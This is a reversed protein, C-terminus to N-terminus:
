KHKPPIIEVPDVKFMEETDKTKEGQSLIKKIEELYENAKEKDEGASAKEILDEIRTAHTKIRQELTKPYGDGTDIFRVGVIIADDTGVPIFYTATRNSTILKVGFDSTYRYTKTNNPRIAMIRNHGRNEIQELQLMLDKYYSSSIGKNYSGIGIEDEYVTRATRGKDTGKELFYITGKKKTEEKKIEPENQEIEKTLEVTELIEGIRRGTKIIIENTLKDATELHEFMTLLTGIEYTADKLIHKNSGNHNKSKYVIVRNSKNHYLGRAYNDISDKEQITMEKLLKKNHDHFEIGKQIMELYEDIPTNVDELEEEGFIEEYALQANYLAEDNEEIFIDLAEEPTTEPERELLEILSDKTLEIAEDVTEQHEELYATGDINIEIEETEAVIKVLRKITEPNSLLTEIKDLTERNIKSVVTEPELEELEELAEEQNREFIEIVKTDKEILKKEYNATNNKIVLQLLEIKEEESLRSDEMLEVFLDLNVTEEKEEVYAFKVGFAVIQEALSTLEKINDRNKLVDIRSQYNILEETLEILASQSQISQERTVENDLLNTEYLYYYNTMESLYYNLKEKDPIARELVTALDKTERSLYDIAFDIKSENLSNIIEGIEEFEKNKEKLNEIQLQIDLVKKELSSLFKEVIKSVNSVM